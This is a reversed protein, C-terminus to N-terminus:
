DHRDNEYSAILEDLAKWLTPWQKRHRFMLRYHFRPARGPDRVAMVVAKVAQQQRNM